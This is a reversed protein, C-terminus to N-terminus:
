LLMALFFFWLFVAAFLAMDYGTYFWRDPKIVEATKGEDKWYGLM